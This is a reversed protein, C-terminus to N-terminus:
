LFSADISHQVQLLGRADYEALIPLMSSAASRDEHTSSENWSECSLSIHSLRPFRHMDAPVIGAVKKIAYLKRRRRLDFELQLHELNDMHTANLIQCVAETMGSDASRLVFSTISTSNLSNWQQLESHDILRSHACKDASHYTLSTGFNSWFGKYVALRVHKVTSHPHALFTILSLIGGHQISIDLRQLTTITSTTSLWQFITQHPDKHGLRLSVLSMNSTAPPEDLGASKQQIALHKLGPWSSVFDMLWGIPYGSGPGITLSTVHPFLRSLDIGRISHQNSRTPDGGGPVASEWFLNILALTRTQGGLKSSLLVLDECLPEVTTYHSEDLNLQLDHCYKAAADLEDIRARHRDLDAATGVSVRIVRFLPGEAIPSWGRCVLRMHPLTSADSLQAIVAVLDLPIDKIM